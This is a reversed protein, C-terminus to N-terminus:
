SIGRARGRLARNRTTRIGVARSRKVRFGQKESDKRPIRVERCGAERLGAARIGGARECDPKECNPRGCGARGCGSRESAFRRFICRALTERFLLPAAARTRCSLYRRAITAVFGTRRCENRGTRELARVGATVGAHAQRASMSEAGTCRRRWQPPSSYLHRAGVPGRVFAAGCGGRRGTPIGGRNYGRPRGRNDPRLPIRRSRWLLPSLLAAGGRYQRAASPM